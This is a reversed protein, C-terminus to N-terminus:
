ISSLLVHNKADLNGETFLTVSARAKLLELYAMKLSQLPPFDSSQLGKGLKEGERTRKTIGKGSNGYTSSGPLQLALLSAQQPFRLM